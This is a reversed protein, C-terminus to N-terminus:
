FARVPRVYCYEIYPVTQGSKPYQWQEGLPGFHQMWSHDSNYQTSSWYNHNKFGGVTNKRKYLWNLEDKSPLFWDAYGNLVYANAIDAAIGVTSCGALIDATNQAGTGVATGDAGPLLTVNCGWTPGDGVHQDSPAAELGNRGGNTIYFVVGGAPGTDGLAYSVVPPTISVWEFGNCGEFANTTANLRLTGANRSDCYDANYDDGIKISGITSISNYGSGSEDSWQTDGDAGDAGNTGNTGDAGPAGDNGDAGPLGQAGDSGDNGPLGAPGQAGVAGDSGDSGHTGNMGAAGQIGQPGTAGVAGDQGNVGNIGNTGDAGAAGTAGVAGDQGAPGQPGTPGQPGPTLEITDIQNQLDADGAIRAAREKRLGHSQASAETSIISTVLVFMM